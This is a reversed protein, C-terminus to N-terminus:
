SYFSFLRGIGNTEIVLNPLKFEQVLDAVQWAQGGTFQGNADTVAIDGKLAISRHWYLRGQEDQLVLAAASVDSKTKGSSPDIKLTASVIRKDGLMMM